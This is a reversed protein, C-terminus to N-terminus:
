SLKEKVREILADCCGSVEFSLNDLNRGQVKVKPSEGHEPCKVGRLKDKIQESISKLAAAELADGIKDPNVKKGNIEFSVDIM